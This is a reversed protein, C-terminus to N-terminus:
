LPPFFDRFMFRINILKGTKKQGEATLTKFPWYTFVKYMETLLRSDMGVKEPRNHIVISKNHICSNIM